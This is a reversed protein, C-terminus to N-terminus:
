RAGVGAGVTPDSKTSPAVCCTVKQTRFTSTIAPGGSIAGRGEYWGSVGCQGGCTRPKGAKEAVFGTGWGDKEVAKALAMKLPIPKSANPPLTCITRMVYPMFRRRLMSKCGVTLTAYVTVHGLAPRGNPRRCICSRYTWDLPANVAASCAAVGDSAM